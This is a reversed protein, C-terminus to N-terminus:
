HRCFAAAQFYETMGRRWNGRIGKAEKSTPHGPYYPSSPIYECLIAMDRGGSKHFKCVAINHLVKIDNGSM